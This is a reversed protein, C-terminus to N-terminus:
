HLYTFIPLTSNTDYSPLNGFRQEPNSTTLISPKSEATKEKAEIAIEHRTNNLRSLGEITYGQISYSNEM